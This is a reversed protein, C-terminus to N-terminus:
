SVKKIIITKDPDLGKSTLLSQLRISPYVEEGTIEKAQEPTCEKTTCILQWNGAPLSIKRFNFVSPFGLYYVLDGISLPNDLEFGEAGEPVELAYIEAILHIPQTM